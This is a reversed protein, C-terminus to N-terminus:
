CSSGRSRCFFWLSDGFYATIYVMITNNVTKVKNSESFENQSVFLRQYMIIEVRAAFDSNGIKYLKAILVIIKYHDRKIVPICSFIGRM